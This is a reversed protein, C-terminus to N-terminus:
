EPLAFSVEQETSARGLVLTVKKGKTALLRRVTMLGMEDVRDGNVRLIVDQPKVGVRAAPSAEDVGVVATRGDARVITLGSLDHADRQDYRTSKKLYVSGGTVDFTTVYRSWYTVGLVDRQAVAFILDSHRYGCLEIEAVRGRQRVTQGSLSAALSVDVATIKNQKALADYTETRLLGTGGGPVCATDILFSVPEALGALRVRVHPVKNEITLPLGQGPDPGV